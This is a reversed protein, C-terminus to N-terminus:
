THIKAGVILLERDDLDNPDFPPIMIVRFGNALNTSCQMLTDDVLVVNEKPAKFIRCIKNLDKVGCETDNYSFIQSFWFKPDREQLAPLIVVEVLNEVYSETAASWIVVHTNPRAAIELIVEVAHPRLVFGTEIDKFAVLTGDIDFVM